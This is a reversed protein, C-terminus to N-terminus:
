LTNELYLLGCEKAMQTFPNVKIEPPSSKSLRRPDSIGELQEADETGTSTEQPQWVFYWSSPPKSCWSCTGWVRPPWLDSTLHRCPQPRELAEPLLGEQRKGGPFGPSFAADELRQRWWWSNDPRQADTHRYGFRRKERVFATVVPKPDMETWQLRM